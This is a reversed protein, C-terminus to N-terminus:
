GQLICTGLEGEMGLTRTVARHIPQLQRPQLVAYGSLWACRPSAGQVDIAVIDIQDGGLSDKAEGGYVPVGVRQGIPGVLQPQPRLAPAPRQRSPSICEVREDKKDQKERRKKKM